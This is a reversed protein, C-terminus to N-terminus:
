DKNNYLFNFYNLSSQKHLSLFEKEEKNITYPTDLFIIKEQPLQIIINKIIEYQHIPIWQPSISIFLLDINLDQPFTENFLFKVMNPYAQHNLDTLRKESISSGIGYYWHYQSIFDHYTLFGVWDGCDIDITHQIKYAQHDTYFIDHHYDINYLIFSYPITFLHKEKQIATLISSHDFGIYIKNVQKKYFNLITKITNLYSQNVIFQTDDMRQKINDWIENCSLDNKIEDNYIGIYPSFLIDLDISLITNM